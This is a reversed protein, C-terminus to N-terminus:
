RLESGCPFFSAESSLRLKRRLQQPATIEFYLVISMVTGCHMLAWRAGCPPFSPVSRLVAPEGWWAEASTCLFM